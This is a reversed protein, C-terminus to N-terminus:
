AAAKRAKKKKRKPKKTLSVILFGGVGLVVLGGLGLLVPSPGAPVEEGSEIFDEEVYSEESPVFKAAVLQGTAAAVAAPPAWSGGSQVQIQGSEDFSARTIKGKAALKDDLAQAKLLKKEARSLIKQCRKHDAGRKDVCKKYRKMKRAATRRKRDRREAKSLGFIGYDGLDEDEFESEDWAYLDPDFDEPFDIDYEDDERGFLWWAAGVGALILPIKLDM